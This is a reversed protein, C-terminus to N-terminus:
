LRPVDWSGCAYWKKARFRVSLFIALCLPFGSSNWCLSKKIQLMVVAVIIPTLENSNSQHGMHYIFFPFYKSHKCSVTVHTHLAVSGSLSLSQITLHSPSLFTNTTSSPVVFILLPHITLSFPFFKPILLFTFQIRLFVKRCSMFFDIQLSCECIIILSFFLLTICSLSLNLHNIRYATLFARAKEVFWHFLRRQGTELICLSIIKRRRIKANSSHKWRSANNVSIMM